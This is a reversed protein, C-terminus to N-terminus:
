RIIMARHPTNEGSRNFREWLVYTSARAGPVRLPLLRPTVLANRHRDVVEDRLVGGAHRSDCIRIRREAVATRDTQKMTTTRQRMGAAAASGCDAVAQRSM